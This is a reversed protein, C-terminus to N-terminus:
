AALSAWNVLDSRVVPIATVNSTADRGTSSVISSILANLDSAEPNSSQTRAMAEIADHSWVTGDQFRVENVHYFRNSSFFDKVLLQDTSGKIALLLSSGNKTVDIDQPTVGELYHIVDLGGSTDFNTITDRGHGRSFTYTDSGSGGDMRDNGSGGILVDDGSGGWLADDGVGGDLVDNGGEGSLSDDGLGGFLEDNGDYGVISDDGNTPTLVMPEIDSHTWITGNAFRIEDMHYYKNSSFFGQVLVRDGTDRITLVLSGGNRQVILDGPEVGELYQIADIGASTDFNNITDQGHGRGFVYTDSGDNGDMLDNGSGGTIVDNGYNGYLRDDGDGGDIIDNGGGGDIVDDGGRGFLEDDRDYGIIRDNNETPVIVIAEIASRSWTQGDSFRIEDLHYYANSAFYNEIVVSDPTGAISLILNSGDRSVTVDSSLIGDKYQIADVSNSLDFNKITDKGHGRGFLYIDSGEGGELRDNGAGGILIDNGTGGDISDDGLGGDLFDNGGNGQLYDDGLEGLLRDDSDYGILRDNGSTPILVMAEVDARTWTVGNAFRVQDLHYFVNDSFYNEVTVRDTSGRLTLILSTGYRAIHIDDPAIDGQYFIADVSSTLDFNKITDVGHGRGFVYVDSGQGGDLLDDGAGGILTDNGTDGYLNDAGAGGDLVDHGSGGHMSDRGDGGALDDDTAYGVIYDDGDTSLLVMARIQEVSLISGDSFRVENLQYKAGIFYNEITVSDSTNGVRLILSSGSRHAHLDMALIGVGFQLVDLRGASDDKNVIVDQGDGADFYYTDSGTGGELRDNGAGGILVDNGSGGYLSDSGDGGLLWDDGENGYLKDSGGGGFILDDQTEGSLSSSGSADVLVVGDASREERLRAVETPTLQGMWSQMLGGLETVGFSSISQTLDMADLTASVRDTSASSGLKELVREYNPRLEGDVIQIDVLNAYDRLRTQLLIGSEISDQLNKYSDDLLTWHDGAIPIDSETLLAVGNKIAVVRTTIFSGMRVKVRASTATMSEIEFALFPQGNFSELIGLRAFRDRLLKQSPSPIRGDREWSFSFRFDIGNEELRDIREQFSRYGEGTAAWAAVIDSIMAHQDRHSSSATYAALLDRLATSVMSSERLERVLGAGQLTPLKRADADTEVKETHESYFPNSALDVDAAVSQNGNVQGESGDNRIFSGTASILNGNSDQNADKAKLIIAAIRHEALSKLENAQAIGDHNLDQWVRVHSFMEDNEDFLGDGNSDLDALADFGNRAKTGDRKVTDVGFLEKGSDIQGNGNRDLVLFADDGKIWGTGTKIGDGNFDFLVGADVGMTEIGDGDLDLTLPDIRRVLNLAALFKENVIAKIDSLDGGFSSLFTEWIPRFPAAAAELAQKSLGTIYQWQSDSLGSALAESVALSVAAMAAPAFAAGGPIIALGGGVAASALSGVVISAVAKTIEVDDGSALATSLSVANGILGAKKVLAQAAKSGGTMALLSAERESAYVALARSASSSEQSLTIVLRASQEAQRALLSAGKMDGALEAQTALWKYRAAEAAHQAKLSEVVAIKSDIGAKTLKEHTKLFEDFGSFAASASNDIHNVVDKLVDKEEAKEM